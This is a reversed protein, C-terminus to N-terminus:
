SLRVLEYTSGSATVAAPVPGVVFMLRRLHLTDYMRGTRVDVRSVSTGFGGGGLSCASASIRQDCRIANWFLARGGTTVAFTPDSFSSPERPHGILRMTAPDYLTLGGTADDVLLGQRFIGLLSSPGGAPASIRDHGTPSLGVADGTSAENYFVRQDNGAIGLPWTDSTLVRLRGTAREISLLTNNNIGCSDCAFGSSVYIWHDTLVIQATNAPRRLAPTQVLLSWHRIEAGTQRAYQTLETPTAVFVDNADAALGVVRGSAHAAVAPRSTGDVVRVIHTGPTGPQVRGYQDVQPQPAYFFAGDGSEAAVVATTTPIGLPIRATVSLPAAPQIGKSTPGAAGVVVVFGVVAAAVAVFAGAAAYRHQTRRRRASLRLREFADPAPDLREAATSQLVRRALEERLDNTM